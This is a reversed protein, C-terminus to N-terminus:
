GGCAGPTLQRSGQRPGEEQGAPGLEQGVQDQNVGIAVAARSCHTALMNEPAM